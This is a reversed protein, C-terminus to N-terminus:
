RGVAERPRELEVHWAQQFGRMAAVILAVQLLALLATLGGIVESAIAPDTFGDKDRSLWGPVSVLAFIALVVALAAAVPLVGRHWRAVLLAIGLYLVVYAVQVAKAGVLVDWAGISIVIVILASVVLLAVVLLRMVRAAAKARNPHEIM